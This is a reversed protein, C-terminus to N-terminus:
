SPTIAEFSFGDHGAKEIFINGYLEVPIGCAVLSIGDEEVGSITIDSMIVVGTGGGRVEIGDENSSDIVISDLVTTGENRVSISDGNTFAIDVNMVTSCGAGIISIGRNVNGIPCNIASAGNSLIVADGHREVNCGFIKYGNCDLITDVGDMAIFIPTDDGDCFLDGTLTVSESYGMGCEINGSTSGAACVNTAFLMINNPFKGPTVHKHRHQMANVFDPCTLPDYHPCDRRKNRKQFAKRALSKLASLSDAEVNIMFQAVFSIALTITALYLM